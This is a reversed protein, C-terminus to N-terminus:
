EGGRKKLWLTAVQVDVIRLSINGQWAVGAVYKDGSLLRARSGHIGHRRYLVCGKFKHPDGGRARIQTFFLAGDSHDQITTISMGNARRRRRANMSRLSLRAIKVIKILFGRKKFIGEAGL